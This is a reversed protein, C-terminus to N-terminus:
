HKDMMAYSGSMGKRIIPRGTAVLKREERVLFGKGESM